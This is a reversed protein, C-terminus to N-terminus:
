RTGACFCGYAFAWSGLFGLTIFLELIGLPLRDNKWLSPVVLLFAGAV